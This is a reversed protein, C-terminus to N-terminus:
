SWLAVGEATGASVIDPLVIDVGAPLVPGHDALGPNAQLVQEVVAGSLSGYQKWAVYDVTDGAATKYILPM